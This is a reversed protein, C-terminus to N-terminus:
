DTPLLHYAPLPSLNWADRVQQITSRALADTPGIERRARTLAAFSGDFDASLARDIDPQSLEASFVGCVTDLHFAHNALTAALRESGPISGALRLTREGLLRLGGHHSAVPEHFLELLESSGAEGAGAAGALRTLERQVLMSTVDALTRSRGPTVHTVAARATRLLDRPVGGTLCTFLAAFPAPLNVVRSSLLRIATDQDLPGVRIVEDIASDFADRGGAPALGADRLAEDSVTLVFLCHNVDFVAKLESLFDRAKTAPQIRDLEDVGIVLRGGSLHLRGAVELLFERLEHVIEPYSLPQRASSTGRKGSLTLGKWGGGWGREETRTQLYRIQQLHRQAKGHLVEPGSDRVEDCVRAFLHLMFERRDHVVPADMLVSVTGPGDTACFVKLLESKGAGRPGSLAISGGDMARGITVLDREAQTEIHRETGRVWRLGPADQISISLTTTYRRAQRAGIEERLGALVNHELTERWAAALQRVGSRSVELDDLLIIAEACATFLVTAGAFVWWGWLYGDDFSRSPAHHDYMWVLDQTYFALLGAPAAAITLALVGDLINGARVLALEEALSVGMAAAWIVVAVLVAGSLGYGAANSFVVERHGKLAHELEVAWGFVAATGLWGFLALVYAPPMLPWFRTKAAVSRYRSESSEASSLIAAREPSDPASLSRSLQAKDEEPVGDLEASGLAARLAEQFVQERNLGPM